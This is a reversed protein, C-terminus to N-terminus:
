FFISEMVGAVQFHTQAHGFCEPYHYFLIEPKKGAVTLLEFPKQISAERISHEQGLIM